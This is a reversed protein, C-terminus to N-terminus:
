RGWRLKDRLVDFYNRNTPQVINFKTRSKRVFVRDEIELPFGIQGDLTIAVEERTKLHLEIEVDDPVVIPRNSLTHPCIPTIVVAEMSPYILPGGASLNYATSGTPTSVILGDARFSNVFQKDFWAEIEIIRALASKGIVADNLVRNQAVREENRRLEVDLMVRRDLRYDDIFIAELAPIMEETRFEALYGLTGYNIGLVPVERDGLMRAAAIMTGDGGLVILLDVNAALQERPLTEIACGIKAGTTRDALEPEVVLTVDRRDLWEVLCGITQVAQPQNPKVVVGIRRIVSRIM